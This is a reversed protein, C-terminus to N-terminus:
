KPNTPAWPRYLGWMGLLSLLLLVSMSSLQFNSRLDEGVPLKLILPVKLLESKVTCENHILLEHQM